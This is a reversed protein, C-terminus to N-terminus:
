PTSDPFAGLTATLSIRKGGRVVQLTVKDGVHRTDLYATLADVSAVGHGDVATIIDDAATAAGEGHLGAREAPGGAVVEVVLVGSQESLGLAQARAPTIAEARIGLWPHEVAKGGELGTLARKAANIPIAFGVGVSGEIPSEISENVGIVAGSRNLLPGGSNGPNIAADTQLMGTLSRGNPATKSRGLGSIIGATLTGSLGFPAGIALATDGIQVKDSDGLTLPHLRDAPVSAQLVALDSGVDTGRVQADVTQGDNFRVRVQRANAVVHANTLIHGQKDVVIGSGTAEAFRRPSANVETSVTVVGAIVQQYLGALSESTGTPAAAVAAASPQPNAHLALATWLSGAAIGGALLMAAILAAVVVRVRHSTAEPPAPPAPETVM